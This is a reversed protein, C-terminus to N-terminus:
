VSGSIGASTPRLAKGHDVRAAELSGVVSGLAYGVQLAIATGALALALQVLGDGHAIGEVVVIALAGCSVPVLVFVQFRLGLVAGVLIGILIIIM